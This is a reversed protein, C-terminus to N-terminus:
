VKEIKNLIIFADVSKLGDVASTTIGGAYGSGEGIPYLGKVNVSEYNKNRTIRVPSSSRTEVGLLLAEDDDFGKLKRGLLPLAEKISDTIFSPLVDKIQAFVIGAGYSTGNEICTTIKNEKFDKVKQCIAKYSKSIDYAKKEYKRQLEVGALVDDSPFDEKNVNVLIASNSYKGDRKYNSMGNVCVHGEESAAPVVEGGPCMCFTYVGRNNPLHVALKYDAAKLAKHNYYKEGYQAKNINEQLHEIRVGMSFPKQELYVNTNKLMEFTDRSSHGIALFCHKTRLYTEVGKQEIYIGELSGNKIDLKTLKTEFLIKGGLTLIKNRINIVVKRLVDTGIHPKALYRLDENAGANIFEEIMYLIYDDNITTQLKGDSFTGAGGEGFQINSYPNLKGTKMLNDVDIIREEVKKGQEILTVNFGKMVLSLTAFLGAPGAGVVVIQENYNYKEKKLAPRYKNEDFVSINKDQKYSSCVVYFSTIFFIDSKNRADVSKKAYEFLKVEKLKYKNIVKKKISEFSDDLEMRVNKIIIM